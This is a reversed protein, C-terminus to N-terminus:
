RGGRWGCGGWRWGCYQAAATRGGWPSFAGERGGAALPAGWLGTSNNCRLEATAEVEEEGGRARGTDEATSGGEGENGRPTILPNGERGGGGASRVSGPACLNSGESDGFEQTQHLHELVWWGGWVISPPPAEACRVLKRTNQQM